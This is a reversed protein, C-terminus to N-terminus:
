HGVARGRHSGPTGAAVPRPPAVRAASRSRVLVELRVLLRLLAAEWAPRHRDFWRQRSARVVREIDAEPPRGHHPRVHVVRLEPELVRRHGAAALRRALDVDEYYLFFGPDFGGVEAFARSRVLFCAGTVWDVPGARHRREALYKRRDCPRALGAVLPTYRNSHKTSV